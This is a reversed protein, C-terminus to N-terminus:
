SVFGMLGLDEPWMAQLNVASSSRMSATGGEEHEEEEDKWPDFEDAPCRTGSAPVRGHELYDRIAAHACRSPATSGCHGVVDVELVAAGPHAAAMAYANRLPTVPDLRSSTFLLPAAPKGRTTDDGNGDRGSYKEEKELSLSMPLPPSSPAPTGFPGTFRWGPRVAWGACEFRLNAWYPGFTPSQAALADTYAALGAADLRATADDGDGCMIAHAVDAESRAAVAPSNPPVLYWM